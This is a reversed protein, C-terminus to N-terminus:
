ELDLEDEDGTDSDVAASMAGHSTKHHDQKKDFYRNIQREVKAVAKDISEYMDYSESEAEANLKKGHVIVEAKSRTKEQTLIVEARSIKHRDEIAALLKERAYDRMADTLDLHRGSVAVTVSM